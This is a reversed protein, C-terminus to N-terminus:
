PKATERRGTELCKGVARRIKTLPRNSSTKLSVGRIGAAALAPAHALSKFWSTNDIYLSKKSNELLRGESINHETQTISLQDAYPCRAGAAGIGILEGNSLGFM